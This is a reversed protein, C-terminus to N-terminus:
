KKTEKPKKLLKWVTIIGIVIQIVIQGIDQVDSPAPLSADMAGTVTLLTEGTIATFLTNKM